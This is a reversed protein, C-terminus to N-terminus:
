GANDRFSHFLPLSPLLPSPLFFFFFVYVAFPIGSAEATKQSFLSSYEFRLSSYFYWSMIM